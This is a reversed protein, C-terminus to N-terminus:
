DALVRLPGSGSFAALSQSLCNFVHRNLARDDLPRKAALYRTFSYATPRSM